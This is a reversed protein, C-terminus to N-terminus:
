LGKRTLRGSNLLDGFCSLIICILSNPVARSMQMGSFFGQRNCNTTAISNINCINILVIKCLICYKLMNTPWFFLCPYQHISIPKCSNKRIAHFEGHIHLWAIAFFRCTDHGRQTAHVMEWSPCIASAALCRNCKRVPRSHGACSGTPICPVICVEELVPVDFWPTIKGLYACTLEFCVDHCKPPVKIILHGGAGQISHLALIVDVLNSSYNLLSCHPVTERKLIEKSWWGIAALWHCCFCPVLGM